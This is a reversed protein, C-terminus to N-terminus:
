RYIEDSKHYYLFLCLIIGVEFLISLISGEFGFSGGNIITPTHIRSEIASYFSIGSVNFGFLSQFFNWSAHFAIPFWLNKTYQYSLGFLIGVLFLNLFPIIGLNPNAGHMLMFILSSILIAVYKNFRSMLVRQMYGRTLLEEIMAGFLFIFITASMEYLNFNTRIFEIQKTSILVIYGIIICLAASIVGIIIDTTRNEIRLGIDRLRKREMIKIAGAVTLVTAFLGSFSTWFLSTTSMDVETSTIKIGLISTTIYTCLGYILLWPIVIVFGMIWLYGKRIQTNDQATGERYKLRSTYSQNM